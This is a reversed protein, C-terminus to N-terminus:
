YDYYHLREPEIEKQPESLCFTLLYVRKSHFKKHVSIKKFRPIFNVPDFWKDFPPLVNPVIKYQLFFIVKTVSAGRWALFTSFLEDKWIDGLPMCLRHNFIWKQAILVFTLVCFNRKKMGYFIIPLSSLVFLLYKKGFIFYFQQILKSSVIYELPDIKKKGQLFYFELWVLFAM